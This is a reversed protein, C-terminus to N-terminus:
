SLVGNAPANAAPPGPRRLVVRIEIIVPERPVYM